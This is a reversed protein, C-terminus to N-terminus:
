EVLKLIANAGRFEECSHPWQGSGVLRERLDHLRDWVGMTLDEIPAGTDDEGSEEGMRFLIAELVDAEELSMELLVTPKSAKLEVTAM